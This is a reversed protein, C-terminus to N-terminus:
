YRRGRARELIVDFGVHVSFLHKYVTGHPPTFGFDSTPGTVRVLGVYSDRVEWRLSYGRNVAFTTGVGLAFAPRVRTKNEEVYVLTVAGGNSPSTGEM